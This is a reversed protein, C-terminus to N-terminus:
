QQQQQQNNHKNNKIQILFINLLKKTKNREKKTQVKEFLKHQM